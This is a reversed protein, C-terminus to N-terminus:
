QIVFFASWCSVPRVYAPMISLGNSRHATPRSGPPRGHRVLWRVQVMLGGPAM